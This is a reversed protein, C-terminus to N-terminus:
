VVSKRDTAAVAASPTNGVIYVRAGEKDTVVFSGSFKEGPIRCHAMIIKGGYLVAQAPDVDHEHAFVIRKAGLQQLLNDVAKEGSLREYWPRQAFWLLERGDGYILFNHACEVASVEQHLDYNVRRLAAIGYGDRYNAIGYGDRYNLCLNGKSDVPLGAHIFFTGSEDLYYLRLNRRMWAAPKKAGAKAIRMFNLEHNGLLAVAEGRDVLERVRNVVEAGAPGLDLYDGLFVMKKIGLAKIQALTADCIEINAHLDHIAAVVSVAPQSSVASHAPGGKGMQMGAIAVFNQLPAFKADFAREERRAKPDNVACVPLSSHEIVLSPIANAPHCNKLNITILYERLIQRIQRRLEQRLPESGIERIM